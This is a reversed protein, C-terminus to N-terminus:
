NKEMRNHGSSKCGGVGRCTYVLFYGDFSPENELYFM